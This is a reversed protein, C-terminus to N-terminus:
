EFKLSELVSVLSEFLTNNDKQWVLVITFVGNNREMLWARAVYSDNAASIARASFDTGDVPTIGDYSIEIYDIYKDLFGPSLASASTDPYFNFSIYTNEDDDCTIKGGNDTFGEPVSVSYIIKTADDKPAPRNAYESWDDPSIEVISPANSPIPSAEGVISSIDDAEGDSGSVNPSTDQQQPGCGSFMCMIVFIIVLSVILSVAFTITKKITKTM